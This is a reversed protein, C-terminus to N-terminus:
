ARRISRDATPLRAFVVDLIRGGMNTARGTAWRQVADYSRPFAAVERLGHGAALAQVQTYPPAVAPDDVGDLAEVVLVRLSRWPAAALVELEAGQVDVVVADAHPCIVDLRVAPVQVTRAGDLPRLSAMNTRDPVHLDVTGSGAATCAAEVVTVRRDGRYRRRLRGALDPNPEVLTIRPIGAALYGGVEEGDHAGVHALWAPQHPAIVAAIRDRIESARM